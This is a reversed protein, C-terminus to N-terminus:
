GRRQGDRHQARLQDVEARLAAVEADSGSRHVSREAPISVGSRKGGRMMFWMMLGMGVPCALVAVAYFADPM